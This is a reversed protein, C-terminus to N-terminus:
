SQWHHIVSLLARQPFTTAIVLLQRESKVGFKEMWTIVLPHGKWKDDGRLVIAEALDLLEQAEQGTLDEFLMSEANIKMALDVGPCNGGTYKYPVIPLM